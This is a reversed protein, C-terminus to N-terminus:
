KRPKALLTMVMATIIAAGIGCFPKIGTPPNKEPPKEPPKIIAVVQM